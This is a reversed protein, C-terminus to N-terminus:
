DDDTVWTQGAITEIQTVTVDFINKSFSADGDAPRGGRDGFLTVWGYQARIRMVANEFGVVNARRVTVSCSPTINNHREFPLFDRYQASSFQLLIM